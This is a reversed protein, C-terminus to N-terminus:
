SVAEVLWRVILALLWLTVVLLALIVIVVALVLPWVRGTHNGHDYYEQMLKLNRYNAKYFLDFVNGLVPVAGVITDITVNLLMRAVLRPSAGNKAMTAILLGSFSMSLLDGAGPLLGLLFDLGFRVRTGPIRFQTDLLKSAWAVWRLQPSSSQRALSLFRADRVPPESIKAIRSM